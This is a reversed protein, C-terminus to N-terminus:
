KFWYSYNEAQRHKNYRSKRFSTFDYKAALHSMGVGTTNKEILTQKM